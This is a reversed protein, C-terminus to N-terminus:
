AQRFALVMFSLWRRRPPRQRCTVATAQTAGAQQLATNLPEKPTSVLSGLARVTGGKIM